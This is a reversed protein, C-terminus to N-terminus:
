LQMCISDLKEKGAPSDTFDNVSKITSFRNIVTQCAQEIQQLIERVLTQDHM